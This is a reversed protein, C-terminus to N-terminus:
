FYTTLKPITFPQVSQLLAQTHLQNLSVSITEATAETPPPADPSDQPLSLTPTEILDFWFEAESQRAAVQEKLTEAWVKFSTTKTPLPDPPDPHELLKILDEFLIQWSVADVLLHHLSILLWNPQEIGRTLHAISILRGDTLSGSCHLNNGQESIAQVQQDPSLQSLDIKIVSPPNSVDDCAQQWGSSHKSFRLRLADHHNWLTAIAKTITSLNVEAPLELLMAQHWHHPAVMEQDFFWHQIPTLPVSGTVSEQSAVIVPTRNVTAALQTITPQEFLQNPALRLGAERAKSVIQISLISDGGLEFFNDQIGVAEIKLVDRWIKVLVEETSNRPTAKNDAISLTPSPKPLARIDIKGSATRPLTKLPVIVAPVQYHPLKTRLFERLLTPNPENDDSYGVVYAVLRKSQERAPVLSAKGRESTFQGLQQALAKRQSPSLAAIRQYLNRQLPM